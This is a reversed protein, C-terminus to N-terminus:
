TWQLVGRHTEISMAANKAKSPPLPSCQHSPLSRSVRVEGWVEGSGQRASTTTDCATDQWCSHRM